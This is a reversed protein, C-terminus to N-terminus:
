ATGGYTRDIIFYLKGGGFSSTRRLYDPRKNRYLAVSGSYPSSTGISFENAFPDTESTEQESDM